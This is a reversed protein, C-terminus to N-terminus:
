RADLGTEPRVTEAPDAALFERPRWGFLPALLASPAQATRPNAAHAETVRTLVEREFTMLDRVSAVPYLGAVIGLGPVAAVGSGSFADV